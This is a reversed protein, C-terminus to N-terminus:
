SKNLIQEIFSRAIYVKEVFDDFQDEKYQKYAIENVMNGVENDDIDFQIKSPIIDLIIVDDESDEENFAEVHEIQLFPIVDEHIGKECVVMEYEEYGKTLEIFEKVKM